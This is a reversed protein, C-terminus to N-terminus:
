GASALFKQRCEESCFFNDEIRLASSEAVYTGCVPDRMLRGASAPRATPNRRARAPTSSPALLSRILSLVATVIFFVILVRILLRM